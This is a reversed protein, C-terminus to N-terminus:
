WYYHRPYYRPGWYPDVGVVVLPPAPQGVVVAQPQPVQPPCAQMTAIVRASIGQQQLAILDQPQLPAAMGHARINNVILEEDVGAKTMAIVDGPTVGANVQPPQTVVTKHTDSACGALAVLALTLGVSSLLSRLTRAVFM